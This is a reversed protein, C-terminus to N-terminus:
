ACRNSTIVSEMTSPLSYGGAPRMVAPRNDSEKSRGVSELVGPFTAIGIRQRVRDLPRSRPRSCVGTFAIRRLAYSALASVSGADAISYSYDRVGAHKLYTRLTWPVSKIPENGARRDIPPNAGLYEPRLMRDMPLPDAESLIRQLVVNVDYSMRLNLSSGFHPLM